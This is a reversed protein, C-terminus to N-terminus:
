LRVFLDWIKFWIIFRMNKPIFVLVLALGHNTSLKVSAYVAIASLRPANQNGIVAPKTLVKIHQTPIINM